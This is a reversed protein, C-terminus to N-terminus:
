YGLQKFYKLIDMDYKNAIRIIRKPHFVYETLEQYFEINQQFMKPYNYPFLLHCPNTYFNEFLNIL